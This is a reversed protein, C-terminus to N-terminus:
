SNGRAETEQTRANCLHTVMALSKQKKVLFQRRALSCTLFSFVHNPMFFLLLLAVPAPPPLHMPVFVRSCFDCSQVSM